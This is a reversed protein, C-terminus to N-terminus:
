IIKVMGRYVKIIYKKLNKDIQIAKNQRKMIFQWIKNIYKFLIEKNKRHETFM